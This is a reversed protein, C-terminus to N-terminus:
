EEEAAALFLANIVGDWSWMSSNLHEKLVAVLKKKDKHAAMARLADRMRDYFAAKDLPHLKDWPLPHTLKKQAAEWHAKAAAEIITM